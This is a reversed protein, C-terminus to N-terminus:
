DPESDYRLLREGDGDEDSSAAGGGFFRQQWASRLAVGKRQPPAARIPCCSALGLISAAVALGLLIRHWPVHVVKCYGQSLRVFRLSRWRSAECLRCDAWGSCRLCHRACVECQGSSLNRFYGENCTVACEGLDPAFVPRGVPCAERSARLQYVRSLGADGNAPRVSITVLRPEDAAMPFWRTVLDRQLEGSPNPPLLGESTPPALRLRRGPGTTTSFGVVQTRPALFPNGDPAAM